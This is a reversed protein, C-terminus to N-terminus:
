HVPQPQAIASMAASAVTASREDDGPRSGAHEIRREQRQNKWRPAAAHATHGSITASM